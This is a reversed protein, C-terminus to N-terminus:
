KILGSLINEKWGGMYGEWLGDPHKHIISIAKSATCCNVMQVSRITDFPYAALGAVVTVSYGFLFRTWYGTPIASSMSDYLIFYMGRYVVMGLCATGFGSFLDYVTVPAVSSDPPLAGLIRSRVLPTVVSLSLAGGITGSFVKSLLQLIYSSKKDSTNFYSTITGGLSYNLIASPFYTALNAGLGGTMSVFGEDCLQQFVGLTTNSYVKGSSNSTYPYRLVQRRIKVQEVPHVIIKNVMAAATAFTFQEIASLNNKKAPDGM